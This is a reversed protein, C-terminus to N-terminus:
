FSLGILFEVQNQRYRLFSSSVSGITIPSNDWRTYRIEPALKALKLDFRVGGELVLGRSGQSRGLLDGPSALKAFDGLHRFAIGAGVYPRAVAAKFKYKAVLPFEWSSGTASQSALTYGTGKYFMDMEIGFGAPLDLEIMPGLTWKKFSSMYPQKADVLDQFPVGGKVGFALPGACFAPAACLVALLATTTKM